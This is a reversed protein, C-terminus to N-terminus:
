GRLLNTKCLSIESETIKLVYYNELDKLGLKEGIENFDRYDWNIGLVQKNELTYQEQNCEYATITKDGMVWGYSELKKDITMIIVKTERWESDYIALCMDTHTGWVRALDKLKISM